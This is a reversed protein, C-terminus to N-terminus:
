SKEFIERGERCRGPRTAAGGIPLPSRMFRLLMSLLAERPRRAEDEGREEGCEKRAGEGGAAALGLRSRSGSRYDDLRRRRGLRGLGAERVEDFRAVAFADLGEEGALFLQILGVCLAGIGEM